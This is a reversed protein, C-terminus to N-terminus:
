NGWTATMHQTPWAILQSPEILGVLNGSDAATRDLDESGDMLVATRQIDLDNNPTMMMEGILKFKAEGL